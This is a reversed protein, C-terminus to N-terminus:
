NVIDVKTINDITVNIIKSLKDFFACEFQVYLIAM